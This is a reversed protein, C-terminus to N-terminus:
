FPYLFLKRTSYSDDYQEANQWQLSAHLNRRIMGQLDQFTLEISNPQRVSPLRRADQQEQFTLKIVDFIKLNSRVIM